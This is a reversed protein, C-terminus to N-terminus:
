SSAASFSPGCHLDLVEVFSFLGVFGVDVDVRMVVRMVEM